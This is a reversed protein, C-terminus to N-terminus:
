QWDVVTIIIIVIKIKKIEPSRFKIPPILQGEASKGPNEVDGAGAAGCTDEARRRAETLLDWGGPDVPCTSSGGPDVPCTSTRDPDVPCASSGYPNVPCTSSEDPDAIQMAEVPSTYMTELQRLWYHTLHKGVEVQSTYLSNGQKVSKM